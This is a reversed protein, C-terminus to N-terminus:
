LLLQVVDVRQALEQCYNLQRTRKSLFTIVLILYAANNVAKLM